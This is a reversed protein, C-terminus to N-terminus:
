LLGARPTRLHHRGQVLPARAAGSFATPTEDNQTSREWMTHSHARNQRLSGPVVGDDAEGVQPYVAGLSRTACCSTAAGAQPFHVRIWFAFTIGYTKSREPSKDRWVAASVVLITLSVRM